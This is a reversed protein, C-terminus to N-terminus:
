RYAIINMLHHHQHLRNPTHAICMVYKHHCDQDHILQHQLKHNGSKTPLGFILDGPELAWKLPVKGWNGVERAGPAAQSLHHM